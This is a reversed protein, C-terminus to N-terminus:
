PRPVRSLSDRRIRIRFCQNEVSTRKKRVELPRLLKEIPGTTERFINRCREVFGAHMGEHERHSLRRAPFPKLGSPSVAAAAAL